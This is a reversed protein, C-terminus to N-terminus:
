LNRFELIVPAIYAVCVTPMPNSRPTGHTDKPGTLFLTGMNGLHSAIAMHSNSGM